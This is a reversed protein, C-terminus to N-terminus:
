RVVNMGAERLVSRLLSIQSDLFRSLEPGKILVEELENQKVYNKWTATTVLRAFVDEWFAVVEKRVGPPLAVGRIEAPIPIDIGQEKITPVNPFSPLRKETMAAIVRLSGSRIHERVEQPQTIMFHVNGGLLNSIRQGGGPFSIFDWMAGTAKRILLRFLNDVSTVSGGSQKLRGPTKRAADVFDKMSRYPSDSRVVAVTPEIILGAVPILDKVTFKAEAVTLPSIIWVPTFFGITNEGGRKEVLYAMAAAAAGGPKNIVTIRQPLLKETEIMAAVARAFLDSGGGPGTHVVAEIPRTPRFSQALATSVLGISFAITMVLRLINKTHKM